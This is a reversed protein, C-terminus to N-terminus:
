ALYLSQFLSRLDKVLNPNRKKLYEIYAEGGAYFLVRSYPQRFGGKNEKMGLQCKVLNEVWRAFGEKWEQWVMYEYDHCGLYRKLERRQAIVQTQIGNEMAELFRGYPEIFNTASYPFPHKIEWMFDGEEQAQRAIDLKMKLAQECTEYQYCHVFEHLITVYGDMSDFIEPTVVCAIRGDYDEIQFAARTGTPIPMPIPANRQFQYCSLGNDLDYIQFQDNVVIAIPYCRELAPNMEAVDRHLSILRDLKESFLESM